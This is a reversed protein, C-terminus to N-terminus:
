DIQLWIDITRLAERMGEVQTKSLYSSSRDKECDYLRFRFGELFGQQRIEFRGDLTIMM